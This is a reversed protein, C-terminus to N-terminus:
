ENATLSMQLMAIGLSKRDAGLGLDAPSVADPLSFEIHLTEGTLREPIVVEKTTVEASTAVWDTIKTGNVSVGIRQQPVKTGRVYPIFDAKLKLRGPTYDPLSIHINAKKAKTWSHGNLQSGWGSGRFPDSNGEMGFQISTGIQYVHEENRITTSGLNKCSNTNFVSGNITYNILKGAEDTKSFVMFPRERVESPNIEFVSRADPDLDNLITPAIDLSSTPAKSIEMHGTAHPRKVVLLAALRRVCSTIEEGDIVPNIQSGHDGQLIILARDYIGLTKLKEIFLGLLEVMPRAENLYNERTNELVKGSLSGDALTVYPPHPPMLHIFHYAPQQDDTELGDLYDKFFSRHRFTRDSVRRDFLSSFFWNGDDYILKRVFHPTMRFLSIDMLLYANHNRLDKTTGRYSSPIQYYNSFKGNRMDILPILNVIFGKDYLVTQFGHAISRQYYTTPQMSGDFPEGSFIAPIAFSTHPAVASNEIFLTFGTFSDQLHRERVLDLFADTQFSDLVFHFINYDSSVKQIAAPITTRPTEKFWLNEQWHSGLSLSQTIILIWALLHVFPGIKKALLLSASLLVIWLTMDMLGLLDYEGWDTARGDFEGYEWLLFSSQFWCLIGITLTFSVYRSMWSKPIVVGLVFSSLFLIVIFHWQSALIDLFGIEFENSNGQYIYFPTFVCTMAVLLTTASLLRFSM